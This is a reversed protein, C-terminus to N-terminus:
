IFQNKTIYSYFYRVFVLNSILNSITTWNKEQWNLAFSYSYNYMPFRDTVLPSKCKTKSEIFSM